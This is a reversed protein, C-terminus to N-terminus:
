ARTKRRDGILRANHTQNGRRGTQARLANVNEVIVATTWVHRSARGFEKPELKLIKVARLFQKVSIGVLAASESM